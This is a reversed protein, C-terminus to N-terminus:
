TTQRSLFHIDLRYPNWTTERENLYWSADLDIVPDLNKARRPIMMGMSAVFRRIQPPLTSLPRAQFEEAIVVVVNAVVVFDIVGIEVVSYDDVYDDDRALPVWESSVQSPNLAQERITQDQFDLLREYYYWVVIERWTQSDFWCYQCYFVSQEDRFVLFHDHM